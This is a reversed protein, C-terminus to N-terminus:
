LEMHKHESSSEKQKPVHSPTKSLQKWEEFKEQVEADLDKWEEVIRFARALKPEKTEPNNCLDITKATAKSADDCWTECWLWDQPLSFIPVQHIMNNPLDQDLNSLSNKDQSLAQYQSRLRDGAAMKRFRILDVLYLASIHYKRGAMHNRWYGQNWFRYGEMEQRSDCFPTYGYPAGELDIDRLERLDARVTQDADVFIIKKVNLPFLVDLFLIKYGWIIRQKETQSNLWRPWKYQVLEYHFKFRQSLYPLSAKFSPSLYNKLFWFKVPGNTNKLVSIMMARMFREYLHGSAVSFINLVDSNQLEDSEDFTAAAQLAKEKAQNKSTSSWLSSSISNFIGGSNEEGGALVDMEEMGSRKQVFLKIIKGTFTSIVVRLSTDNNFQASDCGEHGSIRYIESTRGSRLSMQWVGPAAKLQFYGLNAMVLTDYVHPRSSTGLDLQIGRATSGGSTDRASGELLLHDLAFEAYVGSKTDSLRINDLDHIALASDPMWAGPALVNMTLLANQPLQHFQARATSESISGSADFGLKSSFVYRYFSNLPMESLKAKCNLYVWIRSNTVEHLGILFQSVKQADRSLPDVIAELTFSPQSSDNEPVYIVSQKNRLQDRDINVRKKQKKVREPKALIGYASAVCDSIESGTVYENSALIAEKLKGAGENIVLREISNMEEVSYFEDSRLADYVVGNVIMARQGPAIGVSSCFERHIAIFGAGAKEMGGELTEIDMGEVFLERIEKGFFLVDKANEEKLVKVIFNKAKTMSQTELAIQIAGTLPPPKENPEIGNEPNYIFGLRTNASSKVYRLAELMFRRGNEDQPDAVVWITVPLAKDSEHKTLYLMSASITATKDRNQLVSFKELYFDESDLANGTMDLTKTSDRKAFVNKSLSPLIHGQESIWDVISHSASIKNAQIALQIEGSQMMVETIVTQEFDQESLAQESLFVGNLLATPLNRRGVSAYFQKSLQIKKAVDEDPEDDLVDDWDLKPFRKIFTKKILELNPSEGESLSEYVDTVFSFANSPESKLAATYFATLFIKSLESDDDSEIPVLGIRLAVDHHYFSEILSLLEGTNQKGDLPDFFVVLNFVNKRIPKLWMPPFTHQLYERIDSSWKAYRSDKSLDNIWQIGQSRIDIGYKLDAARMETRVLKETLKESCGIAHLKEMAETELRMLEYIQYVDTLETDVEMGNILFTSEGESIRYNDEFHMQNHQIEKRFDKSIKERLLTHAQLPFNQSIERVSKLSELGSFNRESNYRSMVFKGAKYSLDQMQWAKLEVIETGVKVLYNKLANLQEAKDPYRTKLKSFLLGDAKEIQKSVSTDIAGEEEAKRDDEARYETSKVALEIGYGPVFLKKDGSSKREYSYHRFIYQPVDNPLNNLTNLLSEHFKWFRQSRIDGYVILPELESVADINPFIHDNELVLNLSGEVGAQLLTKVDEDKAGCIKREGLVVLYDDECAADGGEHQGLLQRFMEIKPSYYRLNIAFDLMTQQSFELLEGSIRYLADYEDKQTEFSHIYVLHKARSMFQWFESGDGSLDSFFESAEQFLSTENWTTHMRAAVTKFEDVNQNSCASLVVFSFLYVLSARM